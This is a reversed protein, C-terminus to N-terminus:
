PPALHLQGTVVERERSPEAQELTSLGLQVLRQGTRYEGDRLYTLARMYRYMGGVVADSGREAAWDMRALALAALDYYGLKSAVDYATRYLSALLLWGARRPALHAATTAEQLLGPLVGATQKIEGARVAM